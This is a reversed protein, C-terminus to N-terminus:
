FLDQGSVHDLPGSDQAKNVGNFFTNDPRKETVKDIIEMVDLDLEKVAHRLKRIPLLFIVIAFQCAFITITILLLLISEAKEQNM